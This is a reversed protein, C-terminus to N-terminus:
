IRGKKKNTNKNTGRQWRSRCTSVGAKGARREESRVNRGFLGRLQAGRFLQRAAAGGQRAMEERTRSARTDGRQDVPLHRGGEQTGRPLHDRRQRQRVGRRSRGQARGRGRRLDSSCVDSSWDSIRM